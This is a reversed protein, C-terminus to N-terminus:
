VQLRENWSLRQLFAAVRHRQPQQHHIFWEQPLRSLDVDDSRDEGEDEDDYRVTMDHGKM